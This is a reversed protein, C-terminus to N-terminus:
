FHMVLVLERFSEKLGLVDCNVVLKLTVIMTNLNSPGKDKVFVVLYKLLLV